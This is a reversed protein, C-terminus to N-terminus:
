INKMAQYLSTDIYKVYRNGVVSVILQYNEDNKVLAHYKNKDHRVINILTDDNLLQVEKMGILNDFVRKAHADSDLLDVDLVNDKDEILNINTTMHFTKRNYDDGLPRSWVVGDNFILVHDHQTLTDTIYTPDYKQLLTDIDKFIDKSQTM